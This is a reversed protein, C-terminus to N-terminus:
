LIRKVSTNYYSCEVVYNGGIYYFNTINENRRFPYIILKM